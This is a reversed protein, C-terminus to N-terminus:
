IVSLIGARTPALNIVGVSIRISHKMLKRYIENLCFFAWIFNLGRGGKKNALDSTDIYDYQLRGKALVSNDYDGM